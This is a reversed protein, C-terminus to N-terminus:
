RYFYDAFTLGIFIGYTLLVVLIMVSFIPKEFRIHMFYLVVLTAKVTAILIATFIALHRLDTYQAGVTVVTLVILAAWVVVYLRFPVVHHKADQTSM